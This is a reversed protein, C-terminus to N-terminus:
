NVEPKPKPRPSTTVIGTKKCGVYLDLGYEPYLEEVAQEMAQECLAQSNIPLCMPAGDAISLCLLTLYTTM